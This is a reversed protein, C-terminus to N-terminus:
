QAIMPRQMGLSWKLMAINKFISKSYKDGKTGVLGSTSRLLYLISLRLLSGFFVISKYKVKGVSGYYKQMLKCISECKMLTSFQNSSGAGAGGCIHVVRSDNLYFLKWGADLIRRSLDVDEGYMFFREDFYGVKDLVEKRAMLCGGYLKSVYSNADPDKYPLLRKLLPITNSSIFLMGLLETLPTPFWQLGLPQTEGNPWLMKCGLAGVTEEKAMFDIMKAISDPFVVTDPNLYLVLPTKIYPIALNNARAFGINGGSNLLIVEPFSMNVMERSGDRSANDVVVTIMKEYSISTKLSKLCDHLLDRTNWNVIVITVLTKSNNKKM